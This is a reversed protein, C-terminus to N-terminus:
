FQWWEFIMEQKIQFNGIENELFILNPITPIFRKLQKNHFNGM